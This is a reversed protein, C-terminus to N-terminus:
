TDPHRPTVAQESSGAGLLDQFQKFHAFPALDNESSGPSPVMLSRLFAREFNKAEGVRANLDREIAQLASDRLVKQEESEDDLQRSFKNHFYKQGYACALYRNILARNRDNPTTTFQEGYSIAKEFGVPGGVYLGALMLAKIVEMTDVDKSALRYAAELTTLAESYNQAGFLARGFELMYKANRPEDKAAARLHRVALDYDDRIAAAVGYAARLAPTTLSAEPQSLVEDAARLVADTPLADAAGPGSPKTPVGSDLVAEGEKGIQDTHLRALSYARFLWLQTVLHGIIFGMCVFFVVICVAVAAAIDGARIPPQSLNGVFGKALWVGLEDLAKPINLLQTLGVGVLIKTLWDSVEVLNSNWAFTASFPTTRDGGNTSTPGSGGAVSTKERTGAGDRPVGFLFGLLGGVSFAAAAVLLAFGVLGLSEDRNSGIAGGAILIVAVVVSCIAILAKLISRRETRFERQTEERGVTPSAM